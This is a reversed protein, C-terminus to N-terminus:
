EQHLPGRPPKASHSSATGKRAVDAMDPMHVVLGQDLTNRNYGAVLQENYRDLVFDFPDSPDDDLILLDTNEMTLKGFRLVGRRFYMYNAPDAGITALRDVPEPGGFTMVIRGEGVHLQTV